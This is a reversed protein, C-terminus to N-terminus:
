EKLKKKSIELRSVLKSILQVEILISRICHVVLLHHNVQEILSQLDERDELIEQFGM